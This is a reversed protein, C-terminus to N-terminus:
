YNTKFSDHRKALPLQLTGIKWDEYTTTVGPKGFTFTHICVEDLEADYSYARCLSTPIHSTKLVKGNKLDQLFDTMTPEKRPADSGM